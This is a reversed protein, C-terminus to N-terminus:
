ADLNDFIGLIRELDKASNFPIIIKGKGNQDM